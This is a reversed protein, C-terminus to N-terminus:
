PAARITSVIWEAYRSIRVNQVVQGYFGADLAHEPVATSWSGLGVLQGGQPDRIRLRGGSDGSGVVGEM